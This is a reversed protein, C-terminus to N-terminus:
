VTEKSWIFEMPNMRAARKRSARRELVSRKSTVDNDNAEIDEGEMIWDDGSTGFKLEQEPISNCSNTLIINQISHQSSSITLDEPNEDIFSSELSTMGDDTM